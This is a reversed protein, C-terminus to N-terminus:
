TGKLQCPVDTEVKSRGKHLMETHKGLLAKDIRHPNYGFASTLQSIHTRTPGFPLFLDLEISIM